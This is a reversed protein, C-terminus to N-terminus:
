KSGKMSTSIYPLKYGLLEFDQAYIKGVKERSAENYCADTSPRQTANLKSLSRLELGICSAVYAFDSALNEFRGVFDPLLAGSSNTIWSVQPRFHDHQLYLELDEIFDLFSGRYISLKQERFAEDYSNCGGADLYFFASVLRDLPERVFTFSFYDSVEDTREIDLSTHGYPNDIYPLNNSYDAGLEPLGFASLISKGGTKPVHTFICRHLHSIM